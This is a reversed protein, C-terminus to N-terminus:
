VGSYIFTVVTAPGVYFALLALLVLLLLLPALFYLRHRLVLHLAERLLVWLKM